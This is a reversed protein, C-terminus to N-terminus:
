PFSRGGSNGPEEAVTILVLPEGTGGRYGRGPQERMAEALSMPVAEGTQM